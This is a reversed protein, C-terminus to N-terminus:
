NKATIIQNKFDEDTKIYDCDTKSNMILNQLRKIYKNEFVTYRSGSYSQM